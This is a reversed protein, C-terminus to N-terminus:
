AASTTALCAIAKPSFRRAISPPTRPTAPPSASTARHRCGQSREAVYEATDVYETFVLVKEDPHENRLLDVLANVKSDKSSDWTGFRDLLETIIRNDRELDKRLTPRSSRHHQDVEDHGPAAAAARTYRSAM